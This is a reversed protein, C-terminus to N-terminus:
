DDLIDYDPIDIPEPEEEVVKEVVPEPKPEPKPEVKKPGHLIDNLKQEFEHVKMGFKEAIQINNLGKRKLDNVYDKFEKNTM